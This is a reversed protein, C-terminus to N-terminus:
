WRGTTRGPLARRRHRLRDAADSGAGTAGAAAAVELPRADFTGRAVPLGRAALLDLFAGYTLGLEAAAERTSLHEMEWLALVVAEHARKEALPAVRVIGMQEHTVIRLM